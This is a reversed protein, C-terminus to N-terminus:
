VESFQLFCALTEFVSEFPPGGVPHVLPLVLVLNDDSDPLIITDYISIFHYPSQELSLILTHNHLEKTNSEVLKLVVSKKDSLRVADIM